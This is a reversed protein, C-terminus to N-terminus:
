GSVSSHTLASAGKPVSGRITFLIGRLPTPPQEPDTYHLSCAEKDPGEPAQMTVVDTSSAM